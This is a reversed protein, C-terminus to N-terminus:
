HQQDALHRRWWPSQRPHEACGRVWRRNGALLIRLAERPGPRARGTEPLALAAAAPRAAGLGGVLATGAAVGVGGASGFFSRRTVRRQDLGAMWARVSSAPGSRRGPPFAPM